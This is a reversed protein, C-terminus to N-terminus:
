LAEYQKELNMLMEDLESIVILRITKLTSKSLVDNARYHGRGEIVVFEPFIEGFKSPQRGVDRFSEVKNSIEKIKTRLKEAAEFKKDDM